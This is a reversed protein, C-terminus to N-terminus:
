STVPEMKGGGSVKLPIQGNGANGQLDGVPKGKGKYVSGDIHQITWEAEEPDSALQVLKDLEKKQSRDWIIPGEIFWRKNQMVNISRGGGDVNDDSDSTRIGGYDFTFEEQSKPYLTGNGVTPHSYTIEEIDGANVAM